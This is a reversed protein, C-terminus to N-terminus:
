QNKRIKKISMTWEEFRLTASKFSGHIALEKLYPFAKIFEAQSYHHISETAGDQRIKLHIDIMKEEKKWEEEKKASVRWQMICARHGECLANSCFCSHREKRQAQSQPYLLLKRM